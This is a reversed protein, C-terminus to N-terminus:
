GNCSTQCPAHMSARTKRSASPLVEMVVPPMRQTQEAIRNKRRPWAFRPAVEAILLLM